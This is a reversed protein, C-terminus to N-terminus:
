SSRTVSDLMTWFHPYSVAVVDRDDITIRGAPGAAALVGFAMAVRHDHMAQVAGQLPRDSGCVELGDARENADAGVARLNAVVAAIRDSEKVRLEGADEIVTTGEARAALMAIIPIEDILSPVEDGAIRTAVLQSRETVVDGLPEGCSERENEIRVIAGMRRLVDLMGTRTPNLGVDRVRVPGHGAMLALAIVFAASSFDGPVDFEFADVRDVARLAARARGDELLSREIPVGMFSLMRETHDRSLVPETVSADVGACLGALLVASKVQASAHPSVYDFAQLTGGQVRIPLRDPAGLEDFRAGMRMLPETVRRMPRSRLSEDGTLEAAFGQGALIGMLLRATTGSNGCDIPAPPARLGRLGVGTIVVDDDLDPVACGLARLAAATSETDAGILPRRIVSRGTGLAALMLARHSLSKDGPVRLQLADSTM